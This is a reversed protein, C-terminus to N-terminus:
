SYENFVISDSPKCWDPMADIAKRGDEPGYYRTIRCSMDGCRNCKQHNRYQLELDEPFVSIHTRGCNKCKVRAVYYGVEVM